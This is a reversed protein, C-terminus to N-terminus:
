PSLKEKAFRRLSAESTPASSSLINVIPKGRVAAEPPAVIILRQTPNALAWSEVREILREVRSQGHIFIATPLLAPRWDGQM